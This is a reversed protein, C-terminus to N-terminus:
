FYHVKNLLNLRGMIGLNTIFSTTMLPGNIVVEKIDNMIIFTQHWQQGSTPLVKLETPDSLVEMQLTSYAKIQLRTSISKRGNQNM